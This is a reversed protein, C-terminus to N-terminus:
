LNNINPRGLIRLAVWRGTKCLPYLLKAAHKSGFLLVNMRNLWGHRSSTLALMHLADSGFYYNDNMKLVMGEDLNWGMATVDRKM